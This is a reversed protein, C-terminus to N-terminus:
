KKSPSWFSGSSSTLVEESITDAGVAAKRGSTEHERGRPERVGEPRLEGLMELQHQRRDAYNEGDGERERLQVLAGLPERQREEDPQLSKEDPRHAAVGPQRARAQDALQSHHQLVPHVILESHEDADGLQPASLPARGIRLIDLRREGGGPRYRVLELAERQLRQPVPFGPVRAV